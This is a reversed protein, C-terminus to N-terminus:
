DLAHLQDRGADDAQLLPPWKDEVLFLVLGFPVALLALAGAALAARAGFRVGLKEADMGVPDVWLPHGRCGTGLGGARNRCNPCTPASTVDPPPAAYRVGCARGVPVVGPPTPPGPLGSLTIALLRGPPM